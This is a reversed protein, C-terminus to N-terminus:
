CRHDIGYANWPGVHHHKVYGALDTKASVRKDASALRQGGIQLIESEDIDFGGYAILMDLAARIDPPGVFDFGVCDMAEQLHRGDLYKSGTEIWFLNDPLGVDSCPQVQCVLAYDDGYEYQAFFGGHELSVDGDYWCVGKSM